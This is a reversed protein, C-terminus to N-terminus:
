IGPGDGRLYREALACTGETYAVGEEQALPTEAHSGIWALVLLRRVMIMTPIIAVDEDDLPAVERYGACWATVLEPVDPRDEIFTLCAALDYMFWSFGSDDFDIVYADAGDFLVNALRLDAHVLGFRDPGTGYDELRAALASQLKGLLKREAASVGVGDRWAGWHPRDGITTDFDWRRRTFGEPPQWGRTHRHLRAALAGLTPFYPALDGDDPPSEGPVFGFAVCPRPQPLEPISMEVVRSGDGARLVPATLVVGDAELAEIWRLESDIERATSYGPRGVRLIVPAAQGPRTLTFTANESLNILRIESDPPLDWRLLAAQAVRELHALDSQTYAQTM